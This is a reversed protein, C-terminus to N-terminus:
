HYPEVAKSAAGAEIVHRDEGLDVVKTRDNVGTLIAVYLNLRAASAITGINRLRMAPSSFSVRM